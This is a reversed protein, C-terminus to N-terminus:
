GKVDLGPALSDGHLLDGLLPSPATVAGDADVEESSRRSQVRSVRLEPDLGIGTLREALDPLRTQIRERAESSETRLEVRLRLAGPADRHRDLDGIGKLPGLTPSAVEVLFGISESRPGDRRRQDRVRLRFPLTGAGGAHPQVWGSFWRPPDADPATAEVLQLYAFAEARQRVERALPLLEQLIRHERLRQLELERLADAAHSLAPGRLGEALLFPRPSSTMFEGLRPALELSGGRAHAATVDAIASRLAALVPDQRLVAEIIGVALRQARQPTLFETVLGADAFARGVALVEARRAADASTVPESTVPALAPSSQQAEPGAAATGPSTRADGSRSSVGTTPGFGFAAAAEVLQRLALPYDLATTQAEVSAGGRLLSVTLPLDRSILRHAAHAAPAVPLREAVITEAIDRVAIPLEHVGSRGFTRFLARTVAEHTLDPDNAVARTAGAPLATSPASDVAVGPASSGAVHQELTSSRPHAGPDAPALPGALIELVSDTGVPRAVRLVSGTALLRPSEVEYAHGLVTVQYRFGAAGSNGLLREVTATVGVRAAPESPRASHPERGAARAATLAPVPALEGERLRDGGGFSGEFEGAWGARGVPPWAAAGRNSRAVGDDDARVGCRNM